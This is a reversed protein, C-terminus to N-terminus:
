SAHPQNVFFSVQSVVANAQERTLADNEVAVDAMEALTYNETALWALAAKLIDRKDSAAAAIFAATIISEHDSRVRQLAM